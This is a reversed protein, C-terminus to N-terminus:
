QKLSLGFFLMGGRRLTVCKEKGSLGENEPKVETKRDLLSVAM